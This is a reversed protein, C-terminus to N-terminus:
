SKRNKEKIKQLLEENALDLTKTETAQKQLVTDVEPLPSELRPPPAKPPRYLSYTERSKEDYGKLKEEVYKEVDYKDKVDKTGQDEIGLCHM